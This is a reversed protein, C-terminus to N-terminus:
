VRHSKQNRIEEDDKRSKDRISYEISTFKRQPNEKM